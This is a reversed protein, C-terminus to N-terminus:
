RQAFGNGGCGKAVNGSANSFMLKKVAPLKTLGLANVMPGVTTANVLLTLLVIGSILFLFQGRVKDSIGVIAVGAFQKPKTGDEEGNKKLGGTHLAFGKGEGILKIFKKGSELEARLDVIQQSSKGGFSDDRQKPTQFISLISGSANVEVSAISDQAQSLYFERFFRDRQPHKEPFREEIKNIWDDMEKSQAPTVLHVSTTEPKFGSGKNRIFSSKKGISEKGDAAFEIKDGFDGFKYEVGSSYVLALALGIAGRLEGGFSLPM